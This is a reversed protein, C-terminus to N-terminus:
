AAEKSRTPATGAPALLGLHLDACRGCMWRDVGYRCTVLLTTAIGCPAGRLGVCPHRGGTPAYHQDGSHRHAWGVHPSWRDRRRYDPDRDSM